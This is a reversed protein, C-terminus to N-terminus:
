LGLRICFWVASGESLQVAGCARVNIAVVRRPQSGGGAAGRGWTVRYKGELM